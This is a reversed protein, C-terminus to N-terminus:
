PTPLATKALIINQRPIESTLEVASPNTNRFHMLTPVEPRFHADNDSDHFM